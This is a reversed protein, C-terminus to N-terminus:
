LPHMGMGAIVKGRVVIPGSTYGYGLKSDAARTDWM